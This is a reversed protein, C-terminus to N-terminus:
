STVEDGGEVIFFPAVAPPAEEESDRELAQRALFHEITEPSEADDVFNFLTHLDCIADFMDDHGTVAGCVHDTGDVAEIHRWRNEVAPSCDTLTKIMRHNEHRIAEHARLIEAADAELPKLEAIAATVARTIVEAKARLESYREIFTALTPDTTETV